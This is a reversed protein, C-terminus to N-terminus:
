KLFLPIISIFPLTKNLEDIEEQLQYIEIQKKRIINMKDNTVKETTKYVEIKEKLLTLSKYFQEGFMSDILNDIKSNSLYEWLKSKTDNRLFDRFEEIQFDFGKIKTFDRLNISITSVDLKQIKQIKTEDIRNSWFPEIFLKREKSYIAIDPRIYDDNLYVNVEIEVKEIKIETQKQLILANIENLNIDDFVGELKLRDEIKKRISAYNSKTIGLEDLKIEPLKIDKMENILGKALWHLYTEFNNFPCNSEIHHRFHPRQVRGQTVAILQGECGACYCNCALGNKVDKVNVIQNTEKDVAIPFHKYDKM